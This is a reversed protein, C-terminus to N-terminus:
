GKGGKRPRFLAVAIMRVQRELVCAFYANTWDYGHRKQMAAIEEDTVM